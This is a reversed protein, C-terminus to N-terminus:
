PTPLESKKLKHPTLSSKFGLGLREDIRNALMWLLERAAFSPRMVHDVRPPLQWIMQGTSPDIEFHQGLDSSHSTASTTRFLLQYMVDQKLAAMTNFLSGKGSWYAEFAIGPLMTRLEDIQKEARQIASKPANRKLGPTKKWEKLMKLQQALSYGHFMVARQHATPTLAATKKDKKRRQLIWLVAVTTELLVRVLADADEHLGRECLLQISRYTKCAKTLLGRLIDITFPKKVIASPPMTWADVTMMGVVADHLDNMAKLQTAYRTSIETAVVAEDPLM